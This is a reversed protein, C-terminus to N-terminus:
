HRHGADKGEDDRRGGGHGGHGGHGFVHMSIMAAFVIVWIWNEALWQM